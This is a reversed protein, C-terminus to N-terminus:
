SDAGEPEQIARKFPTTKAARRRYTDLVAEPIKTLRSGKRSKRLSEEADLDIQTAWVEVTQTEPLQDLIAAVTGHGVLGDLVVYRM